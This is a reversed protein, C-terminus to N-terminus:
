VSQAVGARSLTFYLQRLYASHWPSIHLLPPIAGNKVEASSQPSHDAERGLRKVRLSLAWQVWQIPPQTPGLAPRSSKSFLFYLLFKFIHFYYPNQNQTTADHPHPSLQANRLYISGGDESDFHSLHTFTYTYKYTKALVMYTVAPEWV